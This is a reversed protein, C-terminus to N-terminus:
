MSMCSLKLYVFDLVKEDFVVLLIPLLFIIIRTFSSLVWFSSESKKTQFSIIVNILTIFTISTVLFSITSSRCLFEKFPKIVMKQFNDSDVKSIKKVPLNKVGEPHYIEKATTLQLSLRRKSPKQIMQIKIDGASCSRKLKNKLKLSVGPLDPSLPELQHGINLSIIKVTPATRKNKRLLRSLFILIKIVEMLSSLFLLIAAFRIQFCELQEDDNGTSTINLTQTSIGFEIRMQEGDASEYHKSHTLLCRVHNLLFDSILIVVNFAASFVLCTKRLPLSQYYSPLAILLLRAASLMVLSACFCCALPKPNVLYKSIEPNNVYFTSFEEHAINTVLSLTWFHMIAAETTLLFQICLGGLITQQTSSALYVQLTVCALFSCISGVTDATLKYLNPNSPVYTVFCSYTAILLSTGLLKLKIM